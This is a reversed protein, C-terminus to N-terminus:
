LRVTHGCNECYYGESHKTMITTKEIEERTRWGKIWQSIFPETKLREIEKLCNPCKM